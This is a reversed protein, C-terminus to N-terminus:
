RAMQQERMERRKRELFGSEEHLQLPYREAAAYWARLRREPRQQPPASLSDLYAEIALYYRMANRELAGRFDRVYVPRGDADHDIVTFGVKDRAVTGLYAQMAMRARAGFGHSYGLRLLTRGEDLPTAELRIRYNRTGMPGEDAALRVDLYDPDAAALDFTFEAASSMRGLDLTLGTAQGQAAAFADCRKVNPHVILIDCWNAVDRLAARVTAFPQAVVALTDGHVEQNRQTSVLHLPRGFPGHELQERSSAYAARLASASGREPAAPVAAASATLLAVLAIALGFGRRLAVHVGGRAHRAHGENAM